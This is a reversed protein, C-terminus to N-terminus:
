ICLGAEFADVCGRLREFAALVDTRARLFVPLLIALFRCFARGKFNKLTLFVSRKTKLRLSLRQRVSGGRELRIGTKICKESM